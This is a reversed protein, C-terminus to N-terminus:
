QPTSTPTLHPTSHAAPPCYARRGGQGPSLPRSALLPVTLGTYTQPVIPATCSCTSLPLSPFFPHLSCDFFRRPVFRDKYSPPRRRASAAHASAMGCATPPSATM